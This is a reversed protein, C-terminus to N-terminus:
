ESVLTSWEVTESNDFLETYRQNLISTFKEDSFNCKAERKTINTELRYITNDGITFHIHTKQEDTGIYFARSTKKVCINEKYNALKKFLTSNIVKEGNEYRDLLIDLKGNKLDLFNILSKLYDDSKTVENHLNGAVIKIHDNSNLFINKFIICAHKDGSNFILNNIKNEALVKVSESYTQLEQDQLNEM